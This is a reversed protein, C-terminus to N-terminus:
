LTKTFVLRKRGPGAYDPEERSEFGLAEHFLKSGENGFAAIAKLKRVGADECREIFREYLQKGVGRRRAGPEIGVLHIYGQDHRTFGLLFGVVREEECAILADSGLEYFFIPDIRQGSPGGWWRDLVTVLYDYDAKRIGRITLEAM